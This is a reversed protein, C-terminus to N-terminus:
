LTPPPLLGHRPSPRGVLDHEFSVIGIEDRERHRDCTQAAIGAKRKSSADAVRGADTVANQERTGRRKQGDADPGHMEDAHKGRRQRRVRDIQHKGGDDREQDARQHNADRKEEDRDALRAQLAHRRRRHQEADADGAHMIDSDMPQGTREADHVVRDHHKQRDDHCDDRGIAAQAGEQRLLFANPQDDARNNKADGNGAHM